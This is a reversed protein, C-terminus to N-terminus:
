KIKRDAFAEAIGSEIAEAAAIDADGAATDGQKRKILGRGYLSWSDKSNRSLVAEYDALANDLQGAALYANGRHM